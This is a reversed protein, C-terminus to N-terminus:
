PGATPRPGQDRPPRKPLFFFLAALTYDLFAQKQSTLCIPYLGHIRLNRLLLMNPTM